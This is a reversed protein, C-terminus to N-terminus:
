GACFGRYKQHGLSLNRQNRRRPAIIEPQRAARSRFESLVGHLLIMHLRGVSDADGPFAQIEVGPLILLLSLCVKAGGAAPLNGDSGHVVKDGGNEFTLSAGVFGRGLRPALLAPQTGGCGICVWSFMSTKM